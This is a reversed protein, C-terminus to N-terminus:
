VARDGPKDLGTRRIIKEVHEADFGFVFIVATPQRFHWGQGAHEAVARGTHFRAALRRRQRKPHNGLANFVAFGERAFELTHELKCLGNATVSTPGYDCERSFKDGGKGSPM